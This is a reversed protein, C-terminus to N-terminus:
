INISQPINVPKLYEYVPRNLNRSDILDNITQLRQQFAQLPAAVKPDAFHGDDYFGLKTFHVSGLLYLLNLQAQAQDLPPLLDLWDVSGGTIAQAPEYGATPMAPAFSMIDNQPFNVAAHQASATFIIMTVADVLYALTAIKGNGRDGFDQLRGGDFAVLETAWNQVDRDGIVEADSSYFLGLYAAVWDHIAGWILLGDDRYPYVPLSSLDDVGRDHLQRPLMDANFGRAQFGKVILVRSNDITSSLLGNVGGKPAILFEHASYNIALTGQFHPVLLQFLPHTSALQRHTVIVFPEVFLHTRAFHSVAEHFNADAIQVITKAMQWLDAGSSPTIVPYDAPSQGLQIAVPRLARDPADKPPVAFMALPAYAYKQTQPHPGFTGSLTGAMVAYDAIYVRGEGIARKMSDSAGMVSKYQKATVPFRRDPATLRELMVPNPGAVRMHAFSEDTQFTNAIKPLPISVFLKRYDDLGNAKGTPAKEKLGDLLNQAFPRLFEDGLIQIFRSRVFQEVEAETAPVTQLPQQLASKVNESVQAEIKDETATPTVNKLAQRLPTKAGQSAADPSLMDQLLQQLATEIGKPVAVAAEVNTPQVALLPQQSSTEAGRPALSTVPTGDQLEMQPFSEKLASVLKLKFSTGQAQLTQLFVQSLFEKVDDEPGVQGRDGRNVILTNIALKLVQQGILVIWQESFNEGQPLTDVMAIPELYTYNYQYMAAQTQGQQLANPDGM